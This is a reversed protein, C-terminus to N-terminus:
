PVQGNRAWRWIYYCYRRQSHDMLEPPAPHKDMYDRIVSAAEHLIWAIGSEDEKEVDSAPGIGGDAGIHILGCTHEYGRKKPPVSTMVDQNNVFRFVGLDANRQVEDCFVQNGVRPSGFTYLALNGGGFRAVAITAFAAGLSHGTFVIPATPYRRRYSELCCRIDQWATNMAFQFGAHILIGADNEEALSGTEPYVAPLSEERVPFAALDLTSNLWNIKKTGRFAMVAFHQNYAFLAKVSKAGPAWDGFRHGRLGVSDLLEDFELLDIRHGGAGGYALLAADAAWAANLPNCSGAPCANNEAHALELPQRFYRYAYDPHFFTDWDLDPYDYWHNQATASM